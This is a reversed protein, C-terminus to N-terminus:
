NGASEEMARAYALPKTFKVTAWSKDPRSCVTSFSLLKNLRNESLEAIAKSYAVPKYLKVTAWSEDPRSCVTSFSLLRNLRKGSSEEM